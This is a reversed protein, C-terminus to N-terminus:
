YNGRCTNCSGVNHWVNVRGPACLPCVRECYQRDYAEWTGDEAFSCGMRDAHHACYSGHGCCVRPKRPCNFIACMRVREQVKKGQRVERYPMSGWFSEICADMLQENGPKLKLVDRLVAELRDRVCRVRPKTSDLSRIAAYLPAHLDCFAQVREQDTSSDACSDLTVLFKYPNTHYSFFIGRYFFTKRSIFPPTCYKGAVGEVKLEWKTNESYAAQLKSADESSMISIIDDGCYKTDSVNIGALRVLARHSAESVVTNIRITNPMGSPVGGTKRFMTDGLVMKTYITTDKLVRLAACFHNTMPSMRSMYVDFFEEMVAENMYRDNGTIDFSVKEDAAIIKQMVHHWETGKTVHCVYHNDDKDANWSADSVAFYYLWLAKIRWDCASITRVQGKLLKSVKYTDNKGFVYYYSDYMPDAPEQLVGKEFWDLWHKALILLGAKRYEEDSLQEVSNHTGVSLVFAHFSSEVCPITLDRGFCDVPVSYKELSNWPYGVDTDKLGELITYLRQFGKHSSPEPVAVGYCYKRAHRETIVAMEERYLQLFKASVEKGEFYRQCERLNDVYGPKVRLHSKPANVVGRPKRVESYEKKFVNGLPPTQRTLGQRTQKANEFGGQHLLVAYNRNTHPDNLTHIAVIRGSADLVPAGCDGPFTSNKYGIVWVDLSNHKVVVPDILTQSSDFRRSLQYQKSALKDVCVQSVARNYKLLEVNSTPVPIHFVDDCDLRAENLPFSCEIDHFGAKIKIIRNTNEKMPIVVSVDKDGPRTPRTTHGMFYLNSNALFCLFDLGDNTFAQLTACANRLIPAQGSYDGERGLKPKKKRKTTTTSTERSSEPKPATHLVRIVEAYMVEPDVDEFKSHALLTEVLDDSVTAKVDELGPVVPGERTRGSGKAEQDQYFMLLMDGHDGSTDVDDYDGGRLGNFRRDQAADFADLVYGARQFMGIGSFDIDLLRMLNTAEREAYNALFIIRDQQKGDELEDLEEVIKRIREIPNPMSQYQNYSVMFNEGQGARVYSRVTRAFRTYHQARMAKRRRHAEARKKVDGKAERSALKNGFIVVGPSYTRNLIDSLGLFQRLPSSPCGSPLVIAGRSVELINGTLTDSYRVDGVDYNLLIPTDVNMVRSMEALIQTPSKVIGPSAEIDMRRLYSDALRELTSITQMNKVKRVAM